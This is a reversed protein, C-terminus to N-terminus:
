KTGKGAQRGEEKTKKKRQTHNKQLKVPPWSSYRHFTIRSIITFGQSDLLLQVTSVFFTENCRGRGRSVNLMFTVGHVKTIGDFSFYQQFKVPDIKM